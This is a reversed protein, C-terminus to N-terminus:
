AAARFIEVISTGSAQCIAFLTRGAAKFSRGRLSSPGDTVGCQEAM